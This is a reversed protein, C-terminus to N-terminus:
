GLLLLEIPVIILTKKIISYNSNIYAIQDAPGRWINWFKTMMKYQRQHSTYMMLYKVFHFSAARHHLREEGSKKKPLCSSSSFPLLLLKMMTQYNMM